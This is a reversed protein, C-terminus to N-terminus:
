EQGRRENLTWDYPTYTVTYKGAAIYDRDAGDLYRAAFGLVAKEKAGLGGAVPVAGAFGAFDEGFWDFISSLHVAGKERDIRFSDRRSLFRRVQDDLQEDLRAGAFPERRLPPCSIAACVLAAHIRPEKFLGRLMQHEIHDLTMRTAMVEFELKDWVGPIRRISNQPYDAGADTGGAGTGKIPYHDIVARLTLANYANIWWAIKEAAPWSDYAARDARALGEVFGDLPARAKKLGAYDVLGNDDVHRTLVAAYDDYALKGNGTPDGAGAYAFSWLGAFVAFVNFFWFRKVDPM